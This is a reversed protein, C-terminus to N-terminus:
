KSKQNELCQSYSSITYNYKILFNDTTLSIIKKRCFHRIKKEMLFEIIIYHQEILYLYKLMPGYFKITRLAFKVYERYIKIRYLNRQAQYLLAQDAAPSLIVNECFRFKASSSKIVKKRTKHM